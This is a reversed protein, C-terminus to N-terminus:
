SLQHVIIPYILWCFLSINGNSQVILLLQYFINIHTVEIPIKKQKKPKTVFKDEIDNCNLPYEVTGRSYSTLNFTLLWDIGVLIWWYDRWFVSKKKFISHLNNFIINNKTIFKFFFHNGRNIHESLIYVGYSYLWTAM